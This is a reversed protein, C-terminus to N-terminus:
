CFFYAAPFRDRRNPKLRIGPAGTLQPSFYWKDKPLDARRYDGSFRRRRALCADMRSARFPPAEVDLDEPTTQITVNKTVFDSDRGLASPEACVGRNGMSLFSIIFRLVFIKPEDAPM